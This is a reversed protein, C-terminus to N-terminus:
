KSNVTIYKAKPRCRWGQKKGIFNSQHLGITIIRPNTLNGAYKSGHKKNM